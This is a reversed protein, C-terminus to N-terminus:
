FVAQECVSMCVSVCVHQSYYQAWRGASFYCTLLSYNNVSEVAALESLCVTLLTSIIIVVSIDAVRRTSEHELENCRTKYQLVQVTCVCVCVCVCVCAYM